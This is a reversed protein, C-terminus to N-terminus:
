LRCLCHDSDRRPIDIANAVGKAVLWPAGSARETGHEVGKLGINDDHLLQLNLAFVQSIIHDQYIPPVAKETQGLVFLTPVM